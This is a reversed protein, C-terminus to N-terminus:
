TVITLVGVIITASWATSPFLSLSWGLELPIGICNANGYFRDANGYSHDGNGYSHDENGYSHDANGYFRDANSYFCNANSYQHDANSYYKYLCGLRM